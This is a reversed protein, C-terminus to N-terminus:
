PAPEMVWGFQAALLQAGEPPQGAERTLADIARFLGEHGGGPTVTILMWGREQPSNTLAHVTGRPVFAFAGAPAATRQAGASLTHQGALVFFAEDENRRWHPSV